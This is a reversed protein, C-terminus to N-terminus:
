KVKGSKKLRYWERLYERRKAKFEDSSQHYRVRCKTSCYLQDTRRALFYRKCKCQRVDGLEDRAGLNIVCMVAGIEDPEVGTRAESAYGIHQGGASFM